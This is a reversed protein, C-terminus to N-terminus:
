RLFTWGSPHNSGHIALHCNSCSRAFERNSTRSTTADYLSGPHRTDLHCNQCLWPRNQVMLKEHNSGHPAHCSLCNERVPPHEWLFPGRKETHCSYCQENVSNADVMKPTTTGHPNHCSTCTMLGERVPHHSTRQLQAKIQLHCSSCAEEERATKLQAKESKPNHVSHCTICAVDRQQHVSGEWNTQRGGTHCQLCPESAVKGRLTKFSKILSKDGDAEVHAKGPGHCTQCGWESRESFGKRGHPTKQITAVIKEHCAACEEADAYEATSGTHAQMVAPGQGSAAPGIFLFGFVISGFIIPLIVARARKIRNTEKM